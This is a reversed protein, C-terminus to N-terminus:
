ATGLRGRRSSVLTLLLMAAVESRFTAEGLSVPKAGLGLAADLEAETFDGEPGVVVSVDGGGGAAGPAVPARDRTAILREGSSQALAEELSDAVSFDPLWVRGCQKCAEIAYRRWKDNGRPERESRAARFFCLKSLGLEVGHTIVFEIAKDRLLWAQLLTIEPAPRPTFREEEIAAILEHKGTRAVRGLWEHGCGDFLALPEGPRVRAVHLAHHMEDPPLATEAANLSGPEIHFRHLHPM